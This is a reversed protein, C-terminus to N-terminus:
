TWTTLTSSPFSGFSAIAAFCQRLVTIATYFDSIMISFFDVSSFAKHM